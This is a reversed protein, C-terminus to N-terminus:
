EGRAVRRHCRYNTRLSINLNNLSSKSTFFWPRILCGKQRTEGILRTKLLPESEPFPLTEKAKGKM